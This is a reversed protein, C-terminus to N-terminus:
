VYQLEHLKDTIFTELEMFSMGNTQNIHKQLKSIVKASFKGLYFCNMENIPLTKLTQLDERFYTIHLKEM